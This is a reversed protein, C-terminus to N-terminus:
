DVLFNHSDAHSLSLPHHLPSAPYFLSSNLLMRLQQTCLLPWSTRPLSPFWHSSWFTRQELEDKDAGTKHWLNVVRPDVTPLLFGTISPIDAQLQWQTLLQLLGTNRLLSTLCLGPTRPWRFFLKWRSLGRWTMSSGHLEKVHNRFLATLCATAGKIQPHHLFILCTLHTRKNWVWSKGMLGWLREWSLCAGNAYCKM